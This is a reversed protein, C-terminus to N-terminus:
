NPNTMYDAALCHLLSTRSMAPSMTSHFLSTHTLFSFFQTMLRPPTLNFALVYNIESDSSM